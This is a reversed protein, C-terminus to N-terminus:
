ERRRRDGRLTWGAFRSSPDGPRATRNEHGQRVVVISAASGRRAERVRTAPVGAACAGAIGAFRPVRYVIANQEEDQEVIGLQVARALLRRLEPESRDVAAAHGTLHVIDFHEAAYSSVLTGLEELNGSEEVVLSLPFRRTADLIRAEESEFDLEPRVGLPSTAMFLLHLARNRVAQPAPGQPYWRVPLM